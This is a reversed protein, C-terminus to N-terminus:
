SITQDAAGVQSRWGAWDELHWTHTIRGDSLHHLEHMDISFERGSAPVGMWAGVHRGTLKLRVAARGNSGVVEQPVIALDAFADRFAAVMPKLGERGPAQGPAMPTDRWDEALVEDLGTADGPTFCRYLREVAQVESPALGAAGLWSMSPSTDERTM